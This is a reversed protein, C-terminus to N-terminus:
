AVERIDATIATTRSSPRRRRRLVSVAVPMAMPTAASTRRPASVSFISRSTLPPRSKAIPWIVTLPAPLPPAVPPMSRPASRVASWSAASGRTSPTPATAGITIKGALSPGGGSGKVRAGITKPASRVTSHFFWVTGGGRMAIPRAKGLGSPLSTTIPLWTAWLKAAVTPEVRVMRPRWNTTAPTRSVVNVPGSLKTKM